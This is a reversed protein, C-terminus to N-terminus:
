LDYENTGHQYQADAPYSPQFQHFPLGTMAPNVANNIPQFGTGNPAKADTGPTGYSYPHFYGNRTQVYLPNGAGSPTTHQFYSNGPVALHTPFTPPSNDHPNFYPTPKPPRPAESTISSNSNLSNMASRRRLHFSDAPSLSRDRHSSIGQFADFPDMTLHGHISGQSNDNDHDLASLDEEDDDEKNKASAKRANRASARTQRAKPAAAVTAVRRTRKKKQEQEDDEDDIDDLKRDPTGEISPTAYIDRSRQFLGVEAWINETPEIVSSAQEMLKVVSDDKRQNRKKKQQSSAADFLGMGPYRVGKLKHGDDDVDLVQHIECAGDGSETTAAESGLRQYRMVGMNDPTPPAPFESLTRRLTPTRYVSGDIYGGHTHNHSHQASHPPHSNSSWNTPTSARFEEPETKVSEDRKPIAVRAKSPATNAPRGRKTTKKEKAQMREALLERIGHRRYWDDYQRLEEFAEVESASKLEAKFRHSLHSKSSIHTLLHSVDSFNPKKPCLTCKLPISTPDSKMVLDM